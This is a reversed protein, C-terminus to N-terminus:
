RRQEVYSQLKRLKGAAATLDSEVKAFRESGEHGDVLIRPWENNPSAFSLQQAITSLDGEIRQRLADFETREAAAVKSVLELKQFEDGVSKQAVRQALYRKCLADWSKDGAPSRDSLDLLSRSTAEESFLSPVLSKKATVALVQVAAPESVFSKKMEVRLADLEKTDAAAAVLSLNWIGWEPMGAAPSKRNFQDPQLRQHCRFCDYEAFEPWPAVGTGINEKVELAARHARSELLTLAANASALQGAEWLKVEFDKTRIRERADNWHSQKGNANHSTLKRHYAALEFRLPPHGAALMDHNVNREASGVHCSACLEARVKLSKTDRMGAAVLSSRSTDREYHTALWSKGGGHCSECHIGRSSTGHGVELPLLPESVQEAAAIGEPDHCQACQRYVNTTSPGDKVESLRGVIAQFEPSVLTKAAAAHPDHQTFLAFEQLSAGGIGLSTRRPESRGHCSVSNCTQSGVFPSDAATVLSSAGGLAAISLVVIWGPKWVTHVQTM